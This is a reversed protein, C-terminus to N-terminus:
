LLVCRGTVLFYHVRHNRGNHRWSSGLLNTSFWVILYLLSYFFSDNKNKILRSSTLLKKSALLWLRLDIFTVVFLSTTLEFILVDFLQAFKQLNILPIHGSAFRIFCSNETFNNLLYTGCFNISLFKSSFPLLLWLMLRQSLCWNCNRLVWYIGKAIMFHKITSLSHIYDHVYIILISLFVKYMSVFNWYRIEMRALIIDFCYWKTTVIGLFNKLDQTFGSCLLIANHWM